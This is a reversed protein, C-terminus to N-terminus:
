CNEGRRQIIQGQLRSIDARETLRKKERWDFLPIGGGRKQKRTAGGGVCKSKFCEGDGGIDDAHNYMNEEPSIDL